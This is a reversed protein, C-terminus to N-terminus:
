KIWHVKYEKTIDLSRVPGQPFFSIYICSTNLKHLLKCVCVATTTTPHLSLQLWSWSQCGLLLHCSGTASMSLRPMAHPGSTWLKWLTVCPLTVILVWLPWHLSAQSCTTITLPCSSRACSTGLLGPEWSITWVKFPFPVQLWPM